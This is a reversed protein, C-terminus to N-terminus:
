ENKNFNDPINNIIEIYMTSQAENLHPAPLKNYFTNYDWYNNM